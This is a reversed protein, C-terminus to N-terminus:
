HGIIAAQTFVNNKPPPRNVSKVKPPLQRRGGTMKKVVHNGIKKSSSTLLNKAATKIKKQGTVVQQIENAGEKILNQGLESKGAKLLLRPINKAFRRVLGTLWGGGRARYARQRRRGGRGRYVPFNMSGGKQQYAQSYLTSSTKERLRPM